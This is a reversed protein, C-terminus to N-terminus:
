DCAKFLDEPTAKGKAINDFIAQMDSSQGGSSKVFILLKFIIVYLNNFLLSQNEQFLKHM